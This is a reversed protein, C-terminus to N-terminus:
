GAQQVQSLRLPSIRRPEHAVNGEIVGLGMGGAGPWGLPIRGAPRWTLADGARRLSRCLFPRSRTRRIRRASFRHIPRTANVM